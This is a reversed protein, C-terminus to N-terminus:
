PGVHGVLAGARDFVAVDTRINPAEAGLMDLVVGQAEAAIADGLALGHAQALALVRNASGARSAQDALEAPAGLAALTAALRALDVASRSSHLDRHGAALKAIKGFGGAVTLRPVPHRRLYKLFAGAFDGMEILAIEELGHLKRVAAESVKGTAGAVHEIGAARAVDVGQRISAIWASCSFPTVVGTTGLVSLGGVVGLRANMTKEALAEGGPISVTIEVDGAAGHERALAAVTEAMLQRPMPNIAAEGVALPLGPLTVTGVGPGARFRVGSGAAALRVRVEVLAGHTVDPDDGADKVVAAVAEGGRLEAHALAFSPRAGGPLTVSVPDPFRGTLLAAYAARTAATACAGTTWGSRLPRQPANEDPKRSANRETM